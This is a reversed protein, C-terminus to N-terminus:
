HNAFFHLSTQETLMMAVDGNLNLDRGSTLGIASDSYEDESADVQLGIDIKATAAIDARLEASDRTRDAMNYKRLLPNEPPTISDVAQYGTNEREGHALKLTVDIRHLAHANVKGWITDERTTDVEQFTQKNSDHDLGLSAKIHAPAQYDARLKVRDQTFSYPLNTRPTALFMDTTVWAYEAQPTQNDRDNHSYAAKLRVRDTVASNLELNGSFINVRGNLSVRPLAPAALTPNLTPALFADDQTMRSYAVDATARTRDSLQYGAAASIQHSENDPPLALQGAVAAPFAPVAFPNQWSLAADNNRFMSGYYALKAHLRAGTYSASVDLQDTVDEMPAVLQSANVFFTGATGKTGDRTQHSFKVAYMWDRVPTWSAGAGLKQRKTELDVPQLTSALPMLGTTGAPFGAPLTLSPSGKGIFPTQASDSVFHPSEDYNLFLKYIGQQGGEAALSRTDLGLNSASVTWYGADTGRYRATGDAVLFGGQEHLGNYEGSKSSSDSVNGGGLELTGSLGDDFKCLKCEWKSTDVTPQGAAAASLASLMGLLFLQTATKM